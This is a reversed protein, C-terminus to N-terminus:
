FGQSKLMAEWRKTIDTLWTRQANTLWEQHLLEVADGAIEQLENKKLWEEYEECLSEETDPNFLKIDEGYVGHHVRDCRVPVNSGAPVTDSYVCAEAQTYEGAEHLHPSYGQGRAKWWMKRERDWIYYKEM